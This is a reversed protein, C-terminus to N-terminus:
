NCDFDIKRLKLVPISCHSIIEIENNGMKTMQKLPEQKKTMGDAMTSPIWFTRNYVYLVFHGYLLVDLADCFAVFESVRGLVSEAAVKLLKDFTNNGCDASSVLRFALGATCRIKDDSFFVNGDTEDFRFIDSVRVECTSLFCAVFFLEVTVFSRKIINDECVIEIKMEILITLANHNHINCFKFVSFNYWYGFVM